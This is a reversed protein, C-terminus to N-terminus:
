KVSPGSSVMEILGTLSDATDLGMVAELIADGRGAGVAREANALFKAQIEDVELLGAEDRSTFVRGDAMEIVIEGDYSDPFLSEPYREYRISRALSLVEPTGCWRM